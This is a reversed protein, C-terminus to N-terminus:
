ENLINRGKQNTLVVCMIWCLWSSSELNWFFKTMNFQHCWFHLGSCIISRHHWFSILLAARQLKNFRHHWFSTLPAAPQLNNFQWGVFGPFSTTNNKIFLFVFLENEGELTQFYKSYIIFSNSFKTKTLYKQLLTNDVEAKLSPPYCGGQGASNKM